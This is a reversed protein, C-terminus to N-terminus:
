WGKPKLNELEPDLTVSQLKMLIETQRLSLLASRKADDFAVVM